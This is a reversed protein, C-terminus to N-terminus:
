GGLFERRLKDVDVDEELTFNERVHNLVLTNYEGEQLKDAEIETQKSYKGGVVVQMIPEEYSMDFDEELLSLLLDPEGKSKAETLDKRMKSFNEHSMPFHVIFQNGKLELCNTTEFFKRIQAKGEQSFADGSLGETSQIGLSLFQNTKEVLKSVNSVSVKQYACLENSGNLFFKGNEVEISSVLQEMLELEAKELATHPEDHARKKSQAINGKVLKENYELIWNGFFFTHQGMIVDGLEKKEVDTLKGDQGQASIREYVQFIRLEDKEADYRYTLTQKDFRVCSTLSVTLMVLVMVIARKMTKM